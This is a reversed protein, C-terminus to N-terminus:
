YKFIFKLYKKEGKSDIIELTYYEDITLNMGSVDLTYRNDDFQYNLATSGSMVNGQDDSNGKIVRDKDYITYELYTTSIVEYEGDFTFKLKGEVASTHGGNLGKKLEAHSIQAIEQRCPFTSLVNVCGDNLKLTRVSINMPGSSPGPTPLINTAVDNKQITFTGGSRVLRIKDNHNTSLSQTTFGSGPDYYIQIGNGGIGKYFEIYPISSNPAFTGLPNHEGILWYVRNNTTTGFQAKMEIWGDGSTIGNSSRVGGYTQTNANRKASYSNPSTIMDQFETWVTEYGIWIPTNITVSVWFGYSDKVTVSGTFTYMGPSLNSVSGSSWTNPHTYHVNMGEDILTLSNVKTGKVWGTSVTIVFSVDGTNDFCTAHTITPILTVTPVSGFADKSQLSTFICLAYLILNKRM